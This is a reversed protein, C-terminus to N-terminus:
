FMEAKIKLTCKNPNLKMVVKNLIELTKALDHAHEQVKKSKTIMDDIYVKIIWGILSKLMDNVLKQYTAGANKLDFLM